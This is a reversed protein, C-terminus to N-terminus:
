DEFASFDGQVIRALKMHKERRLAGQSKEHIEAGRRMKAANAFPNRPPPSPPLLLREERQRHRKRTM